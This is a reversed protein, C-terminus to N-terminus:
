PFAFSPFASDNSAVAEGAGLKRNKDTALVTVEENKKSAVAEFPLDELSNLVRDHLKGVNM